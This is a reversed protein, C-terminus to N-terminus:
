RAMIAFSMGVGWIAGGLIGVLHLRLNGKTFYDGLAVPDGAFPKMM